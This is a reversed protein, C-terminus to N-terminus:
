FKQKEETGETKEPMPFISDDIEVDFEIEEITVQSVSQGNSRQEISHPIIIGNVEKYNSFYTESEVVSEDVKTKNIMKIIVFNEADIFYYSIDGDKELKIKHAETGEVEETGMYEATYGKKDYNYLSGDFDSQEKMGKLQIGSLEQPETSGTWPMTMWATEGDYAQIMPTGQIDVELRFKNPRKQKINFDTEMGMQASKGKIYMTKVDTLNEQGITEFYNDLIEDLNQAHIFIISIFLAFFLAITKKM